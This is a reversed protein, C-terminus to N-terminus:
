FHPRFQRQPPSAQRGFVKAAAGVDYEDEGEERRRRSRRRREEQEQEHKKRNLPWRAQPGSADWSTTSEGRKGEKEKDQTEEEV